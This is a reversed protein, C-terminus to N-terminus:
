RVPRVASSLDVAGAGAGAGRAAPEKRKPPRREAVGLGSWLGSRGAVEGRGQVQVQVEAESEERKEVGM